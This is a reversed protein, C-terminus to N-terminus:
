GASGDQQGWVRNNLSNLRFFLGLFFNKLSQIEYFERHHKGHTSDLRADVPWM